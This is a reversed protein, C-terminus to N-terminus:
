PTERLKAEIESISQLYQSNGPMVTLLLKYQNLAEQYERAEKLYVAYDAALRIYERGILIKLSQLYFRKIEEHSMGLDYRLLEARTMYTGAEGPNLKIAQLYYEDARGFEKIIRSVNGANLSSLYPMLDRRAIAQDYIDLAKLYFIKEGTADALSKWRFAAAIYEEEGKAGELLEGGAQAKKYLEIWLPNSNIKTEIKRLATYSKIKPAIKFSVAFIALLCIFILFSFLKRKDVIFKKLAILINRM